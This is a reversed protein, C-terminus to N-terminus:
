SFWKVKYWINQPPFCVARILRKFCQRPEDTTLDTFYLYHDSNVALGESKRATRLRCEPYLDVRGSKDSRNLDCTIFKIGFTAGPILNIKRMRDIANAGTITKEYEM